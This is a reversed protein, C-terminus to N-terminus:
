DFRALAPPHNITSRHITFLGIFIFHTVRAQEAAAVLSSLAQV